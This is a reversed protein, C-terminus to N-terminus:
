QSVPFHVRPPPLYHLLVLILETSINVTLLAPAGKLTELVEYIESLNLALLWINRSFNQVSFVLPFKKKKKKKSHTNKGMLQLAINLLSPPLCLSLSLFLSLPLNPMEEYETTVGTRSTPVSTETRPRYCEPGRPFKRVLLEELM